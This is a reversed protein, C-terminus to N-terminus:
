VTEEVYDKSFDSDDLIFDRKLYKLAKYIGEESDGFYGLARNCKQCILGRVLGSEHCHDVCRDRNNSFEKECIECRNIRNLIIHERNSIDYRKASATNSVCKKSCHTKSNFKSDDIFSSECYKCVKNRPKYYPRM